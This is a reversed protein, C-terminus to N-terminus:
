GLLSFPACTYRVDPQSFRDALEPIPRIRLPLMSVGSFREIRGQGLVVRCPSGNGDPPEIVAM